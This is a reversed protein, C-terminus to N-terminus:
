ARAGDASQQAGLLGQLMMLPDGQSSGAAAKEAMRDALDEAFGLTRLAAGMSREVDGIQRPTTLPEEKRSGSPLEGGGVLHAGLIDEFAQDLPRLDDLRAIKRDNGKRLAQLLGHVLKLDERVVRHLLAPTIVERTAKLESARMLRIQALMFIKLAIDIIGQSADHLAASLADTLETTVNTWQFPFLERVFARWEPGAPLREFVDSAFGNARRANRFTRTLMELAPMTGVLMVPVNIVNVLSTLFNLVDKPGVRSEALFQIEDVVLLGLRHKLAVHAMRLMMHDTTLSGYEGYYATGLVKDVAFFFATCLQKPTGSTPCEIRLWVLQQVTEPVRHEVVQPLLSLAAKTATTKGGGSPGLLSGCYASPEVHATVEGLSAGGDMQDLFETLRRQGFGEVGVYGTRLLRGVQQVHIVQRMTPIFLERLRMLVLDQRLHAPLSRESPCLPPHHTIRDKVERLSLPRPLRNILPHKDYETIGCTTVAADQTTRM